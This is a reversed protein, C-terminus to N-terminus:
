NHVRLAICYSFDTNLSNCETTMTQHLTKLPQPRTSTPNKGRLKFTAPEFRVVVVTIVMPLNNM